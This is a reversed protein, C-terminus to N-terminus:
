GGEARSLGLLQARLDPASTSTHLWIGIFQRAFDADKLHCRTEGNYDFRIGANPQYIGQLRDGEQVDPFCDRMDKLWAIEHVAEIPKSRRMEELSREAIAKGKLSRHYTLTLTLPQQDWKAAVFPAAAHLTARYVKFGFYTFEGQGVRVSPSSASTVPNAWLPKGLGLASAGLTATLSILGVQLLYRPSM